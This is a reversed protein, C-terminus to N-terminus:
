AGSSRSACPTSREDEGEDPATAPPDDGEDRAASALVADARRAREVIAFFAERGGPRRGLEALDAEPPLDLAIWRQGPVPGIEEGLRETAARGAADGDLALWVTGAGALFGLRDAPLSPGCLAIAPLGWGVAVLWDFPGEVVYVERRGAARERGLVPREGPLALYRPERDDLNRGIFWIPQGGRLEPVVLRGALTERLAGGRRPTLLGLAVALSRDREHPLAALLAAGDAFGLGCRASIGPAIGRARLYARGAMSRRLCEHYASGAANMIAQEAPTLRDWRREGAPLRRTAKGPAVSTGTPRVPPALPLAGGALALRACAARFDLHESLMVFEIVDGHVACRPSFCHFHERDPDRVDVLLSPHRDDHFPCLALYCGKGARRLRVGSAAVVLDLPHARKLAALDYRTAAAAATM